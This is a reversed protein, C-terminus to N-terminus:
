RITISMHIPTGLNRILSTLSAQYNGPEIGTFRGQLSSYYRALSYDLGTEADREKQTLFPYNSAACVDACLLKDFLERLSKIRFVLIRKLEPLTSHM